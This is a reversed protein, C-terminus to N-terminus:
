ASKRQTLRYARACHMCEHTESSCTYAYAAYANRTRICDPSHMCDNQTHADVQELRQLLRQREEDIAALRNTLLKKDAQALEISRRVVGQLAPGALEGSVLGLIHFMVEQLHGLATYSPAVLVCIMFSTHMVCRYSLPCVLLHLVCALLAYLGSLTASLLPSGLGVSQQQEALLGRKWLVFPIGVCFILVVNTVNALMFLHHAYLTGHQKEVEPLYFSSFLFALLNGVLFILAIQSFDDYEFILVAIMACIGLINGRRAAPIGLRFAAEVFADDARIRDSIERPEKHKAELLFTSQAM